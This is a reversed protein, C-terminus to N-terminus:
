KELQLLVNKRLGVIALVYLAPTAPFKYRERYSLPGTTLAFYLFISMLFLTIKNFTFGKMMLFFTIIAFLHGLIGVAFWLRNSLIWDFAKKFHFSSIASTFGEGELKYGGRRLIGRWTDQLAFGGIGYIAHFFVYQVPHEVIIQKASDIYFDEYYLGYGADDTYIGHPKPFGNNKKDEAGVLYRIKSDSVRYEEFPIADSFFLTASSSAGLAWSDFIIKNRLIWPSIFGISLIFFIFFGAINKKNIFLVLLFPLFFVSQKVYMALAIFVAAYIANTKKQTDLFEIFYYMFAVFLFVFITESWLFLSIYISFPELAFLLGAGIGIKKHFRKGIRCIIAATFSSLIIQVAIVPIWSHFLRWFFALFLPYGPTYWSEPTFGNQSIFSGYTVINKALAVYARIDDAGDWFVSIGRIDSFVFFLLIRACLAIIFILAM